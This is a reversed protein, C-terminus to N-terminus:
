HRPRVESSRVGPKGRIPSMLEYAQRRLAMGKMHHLVHDDPALEIAREIAQLAREDDQFEMSYLRGLHGWFHPEDPFQEVLARLVAMKGERSPIEELCQAYRKGFAAETGLLEQTERFVFMRRLLDILDDSASGRRGCMDIFEAAWTSLSQVWVRRDTASGALVQEIVEKAVLDHVARWRMAEERALLEMLPEALARELWVPRSDPAGLLTSFIQAHLPLQAYHYAMCIFLVIKRQLDTAVALRRRVYDELSIFDKDFAVLGFYFPTRQWPQGKEVIANLQPRRGPSQEGYAQAFRHSEPITLAQGIFPARDGGRQGSTPPRDFRRLVTLFVIPLQRSRAAAYIPELETVSVDAGEVLVLPPQKTLDFLARLRSITEEGRVQLLRVTPYKDHLQWVLRRAITTGGAGPWHYLNTRISSRSRLDRELQEALSTIVDREVDKHMALEFWTITM